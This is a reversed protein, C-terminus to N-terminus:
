LKKEGKVLLKALQDCVEVFTALQKQEVQGYLQKEMQKLVDIAGMIVNKGAKTLQLTNKRRNQPDPTRSLFGKISLTHVVKSIAAGTLNLTAALEVQSQQGCEHLVILIMFQSHTLNYKKGLLQDASKMLLLSLKVVHPSYFTNGLLKM